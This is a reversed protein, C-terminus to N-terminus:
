RAGLDRTAPRERSELEAPAAETPGFRFPICQFLRFVGSGDAEMELIFVFPV